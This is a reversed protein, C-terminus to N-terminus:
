GRTVAADLVRQREVTYGETGFRQHNKAINAALVESVSVSALRALRFLSLAVRELAFALSGPKMERGCMPRKVSEAVLCADHLMEGAANRLSMRSATAPWSVDICSETSVMALYWAVDGLESVIDDRSAGASTMADVAEAAEGCLWLALYGLRAPSGAPAIRDLHSREVAQIRFAEWTALDLHSM